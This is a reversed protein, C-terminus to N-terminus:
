CFDFTLIKWEICPQDELHYLQGQYLIMHGLLHKDETPPVVTTYIFIFDIEQDSLASVPDRGIQETHGVEAM